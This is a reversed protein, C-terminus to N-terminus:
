RLVKFMQNNIRRIYGNNMLDAFQERLVIWEDPEAKIYDTTFWGNQDTNEKIFEMLEKSSKFM